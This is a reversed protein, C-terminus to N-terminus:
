LNCRPAAVFRLLDRLIRRLARLRQPKRTREIACAYDVRNM